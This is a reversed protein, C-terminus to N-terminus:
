ETAAADVMALAQATSTIGALGTVNKQVPNFGENLPNSEKAKDKFLGPEAKKINEIADKVGTIKGAEDIKVASTDLMKKLADVSVNLSYNGLESTIADQIDRTQMTQIFRKNLTDIASRVEDNKIKNLDIKGTKEDYWGIDFINMAIVEESKPEEVKEVKPQEKNLQSEEQKVQKNNTEVPETKTEKTPEQKPETKTEQELKVEEDLNDTGFLRKVLERMTM